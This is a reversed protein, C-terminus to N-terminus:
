RVLKKKRGAKFKIGAERAWRRVTPSGIQTMMPDYGDINMLDDYTRIETARGDSVLQRCFAKFPGMLKQDKRHKVLDKTKERLMAEAETKIAAESFDAWDILSAQAIFERAKILDDLANERDEEELWGQVCEIYQKSLALYVQGLTAKGAEDLLSPDSYGSLPWVYDALSFHQNAKEEHKILVADLFLMPDPHKDIGLKKAADSLAKKTEDIKRLIYYDGSSVPRWPNWIIPKWSSSSM